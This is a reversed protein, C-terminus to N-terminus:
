SFAFLKKKKKKSPTASPAIQSDNEFQCFDVVEEELEALSATIENSSEAMLGSDLEESSFTRYLKEGSALQGIPQGDHPSNKDGVIGAFIYGEGKINFKRGPIVSLSILRENELDYTGDELNFAGIKMLIRTGDELFVDTTEYKEKKNIQWMKKADITKTIPKEIYLPRPVRPSLYGTEKPTLPTAQKVDPIQGDLFHFHKFIARIKEKDAKDAQEIYTNIKFNLWETLTNVRFEPDQKQRRENFGRMWSELEGLTITSKSLTLPEGSGDSTVEINGNADEKFRLLSDPYKEIEANGYVFSEQLAKIAACFRYLAGHSADSMDEVLKDEAIIISGDELIERKDEPIEHRKYVPELEEKAAQIHDNEDFLATLAFEYLEPNEKSMEPYPVPIEALERRMAPDPEHRDPYRPGVPNSTWIAGAGPLVPHGYFDDGPAKQRAKKIISYAKPGLRGAEDFRTIRGTKVKPETQRSDDYGTFARMLPGYAEYSGGTSPDVDKDKILQIEGTTSECEIETPLHGTLEFAAADALKSKGSGAEGILSPWRHNLIASVIKKQIIRFSSLWVVRAGTELQRKYEKFKEYQYYAVIDTNESIKPFGKLIELDKRRKELATLNDALRAMQSQAVSIKGRGTIRNLHLDRELAKFKEEKKGIEENIDQWLNGLESLRTKQADIRAEGYTVPFLEKVASDDFLVKIESILHSDPKESEFQEGKEEAEHRLASQAQKDAMYAMIKGYLIDAKERSTLKKYDKKIEKEEEEGATENKGIVKTEIYRFILRARREQETEGGSLEQGDESSVPERLNQELKKEM